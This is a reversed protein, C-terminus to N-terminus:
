EKLFRKINGNEDVIYTNSFEAMYGNRMFQRYENRLQIQEYKEEETLPETRSKRALFNIREIKVKDMIEFSRGLHEQYLSRHVDTEQSLRNSIFNPLARSCLRSTRVASPAARSSRSAKKSIIPLKGYQPRILSQISFLGRKVTSFSARPTM